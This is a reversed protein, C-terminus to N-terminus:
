KIERRLVNCVWHGTQPDITRAVITETVLTTEHLTATAEIRFLDSSVVLLNKSIELDSCGPATKYWGPTKFALADGRDILLQRYDYIAAALDKHEMPLLAAIVVPGATNLNVAGPYNISGDGETTVGFVTVQAAIGPVDPTGYLLEGPVGKLMALEAIHVFPANRSAYPPDLSLYYDSEAGSLGTTADDDGTDLWDKAANVIVNPDMDAFVDALGKYYNLLDEWIIKQRENFARREPYQVLANLQIRGLEDSIKLSVRGNQFPFEALVADVKEPDAWEELLSDTDSELRDKVLIAMAIQVGSGALHELSQRNKTSYATTVASRAQRNIELTVAILLTIVALTLLLAVGRDNGLIWGPVRLNERGTSHRAIPKGSHM